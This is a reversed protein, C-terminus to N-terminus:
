EWKFSIQYPSTRTKGDWKGLPDAEKDQCSISTFVGKGNPDCLSGMTLKFNPDIDWLVTGPGSCQIWTNDAIDSTRFFIKLKPTFKPIKGSDSDRKWYHNTITDSIGVVMATDHPNAHLDDGTDFITRVLDIYHLCSLHVQKSLQECRFEIKVTSDEGGYHQSNKNCQNIITYHHVFQDDPIAVMKKAAAVKLKLDVIVKLKEMAVPNSISEGFLGTIERYKFMEPKLQSLIEALACPAASFINSCQKIEDEKAQIGLALQNRQTDLDERAARVANQGLEIQDWQRKMENEVAKVEIDFQLRERVLDDRQNDLQKIIAKIQKRGQTIEDMKSALQARVADLDSQHSKVMNPYSNHEQLPFPSPSLAQAQDIVLPQENGDLGGMTSLAINDNCLYHQNIMAQYRAEAAILNAEDEKIKIEKARLENERAVIQADAEKQKMEIQAERQQLEFERKQTDVERQKLQLELERKWVRLESREAEFGAVRKEFDFDRQKTKLEDYMSQLRQDLQTERQDLQTERQFPQTTTTPNTTNLPQQEQQQQQRQQQDLEDFELKSETRDPAPHSM